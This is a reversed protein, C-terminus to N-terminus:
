ETLIAAAAAVVACIWRDASSAATYIGTDAAAAACLGRDAARLNNLLFIVTLVRVHYFFCWQLVVCCKSCNLDCGWPYDVVKPRIVNIGTVDSGTVDSESVDCGTAMSSGTMRLPVNQVVITLSFFAPIRVVYKRNHRLNRDHSTM